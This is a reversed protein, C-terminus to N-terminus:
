NTSAGAATPSPQSTLAVKPPDDVSCVFPAYTACHLDRLGPSRGPRVAACHQGCVYNDPEGAAWLGRVARSQDPWLFEGERGQDSLGVWWEGKHRSQTAAQLAKLADRSDVRALTYGLSHCFQEAEWFTTPFACLAFSAGSLQQIPCNCSVADDAHGSCDNDVGDDCSETAGPHINPNSDDCDM